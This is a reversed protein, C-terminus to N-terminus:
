KQLKKIKVKLTLTKLAKVSINQIDIIHQKIKRKWSFTTAVKFTLM